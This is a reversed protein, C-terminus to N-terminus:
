PVIIEMGDYSSEFGTGEAIESFQDYNVKGNHSFHHSIFRTKEDAVGIKLLREKVRLNEPFGMHSRPCPLRGNTCDLSVASLRKGSLYSFTEDPPFETDNAYLLRTSGEELLYILCQELPDHVAPLATFKVGGEEVSQFPEIGHLEVVEPPIFKLDFEFAHRIVELVKQNGYLRLPATPKRHCYYAEYRFVLEKAALHDIHSHTFFVAELKSLDLGYRVKSAYTDPSFDLMVRDNVMACSRFRINKGGAEAAQRCVSCECFMAPIGEAAATGLYKLHM